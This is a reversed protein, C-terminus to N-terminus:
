FMVNVGFNFRRGDMVRGFNEERIEKDFLNLVSGRLAVNERLQYRVGADVLTYSPYAESLGGRGMTQEAQGKYRANTWLDTRSTAAWDVGLSARHQPQNNLPLGESDGSRQESDTYTYSAQLDVQEHVPMDLTVEVGRVRAEEVNQYQYVKEYDYGQYFCTTDPGGPTRDCITPKEIKDEYDTQYITLGAVLGNDARWYNAFEYTVSKEAELDSNGVDAGDTGPGGGGEVWNSDGEKLDPTRYGASVGGKMTWNDTVQYVGYLRPVLQEGYNEDDVWRAGGTLSLQDTIFWEDEVFLAMDWRELNPDGMARSPNETKQVRYQAGVTLLHNGLPLVTSTNATTREYVADQSKNELTANQVYSRTTTASGWDIEHNLNQYRRLTESESDGRGGTKAQHGVTDQTAVGSKFSLSQRDSIAWDLEAAVDRRQYERYGGEIEDEDRNFTEGTITAALHDEILPGSMYFQGQHRNGSDNDQQVTTDLSVSGGWQEPTKKTIVNVVGGLAASGYISSMPGRIVEIREIANMPPLWGFEAGSGYGNYYGQQSGQPVGDVLILTYKPDFGRISIEGTGGKGSPGDEVYLGPIDQLAQTIDRYSRKELDESSIVSISAPANVPDVATGSASASTVEIPALTVPTSAEGGVSQQACVPAAVLVGAPLLSAIAKALRCKEPYTSKM